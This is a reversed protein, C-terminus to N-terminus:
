YRGAAPIAGAGNARGEPRATPTPQRRSPHGAQLGAPQVADPRLVSGAGSRGGLGRGIAVHRVVAMVRREVVM